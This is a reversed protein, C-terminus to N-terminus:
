PRNPHWAHALLPYESEVDSTLIKEPRELLWEVIRGNTLAQDSDDFAEYVQAMDEAEMYWLLHLEDGKRDLFVSETHMREDALVPELQGNLWQRFANGVVGGQQMVFQEALLIRVFAEM